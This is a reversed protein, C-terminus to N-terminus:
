VNRIFTCLSTVTRLVGTTLGARENYKYVATTLRDQVESQKFISLPPIKM